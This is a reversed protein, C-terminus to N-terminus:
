VLIKFMAAMDAYIVFERYSGTYWKVACCLSLSFFLTRLLWKQEKKLKWVQQHQSLTVSCVDLCTCYHELRHLMPTFESKLDHLVQIILWWMWKGVQATSINLSCGNICRLVKWREEREECGFCPNKPSIIILCSAQINIIIRLKNIIGNHGGGFLLKSVQKRNVASVMWIITQTLFYKGILMIGVTISLTQLHQKAKCVENSKFCRM